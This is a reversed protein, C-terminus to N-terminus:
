IQQFLVDTSQSLSNELPGRVMNAMAFLCTGHAFRVHNRWCLISSSCPMFVVSIKLSLRHHGEEWPLGQKRSSYWPCLYLHRWTMASSSKPLDDSASRVGSSTHGVAFYRLSNFFQPVSGPTLMVRDRLELISSLLSPVESPPYWKLCLFLIPM